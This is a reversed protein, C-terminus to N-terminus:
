FKGLIELAAEQDLQSVATKLNSFVDSVEKPLKYSSMKEIADDAAEVDMNEMADSLMSLLTKLVEEDIEEKEEDPADDPNLYENLGEKYSRWERVFVDHLTNVTELDEKSSAKELTAAMGSLPIIGISASASKMGHVAIRYDEFSEPLSDKLNQLIDAQADLTNYFEGIITDVAKKEKLHMYAVNWDLGFIVPLESPKVSYATKKPFQGDKKAAPKIMENPLLEKIIGELEEYNIPKSLFADFGNDLYKEKAGAIANATLVVIPTKSCPGDKKSKIRRMAKVGNIGPMMHDMFILDFKQEGALDIAEQGGEAETIDMETENLLSILVKRNMTNDDVVLIKADPATFSGNYVEQKETYAEISEEYDGIPTKDAIRQKIDFSFVSGKGYESKVALSSGMLELLKLTIPIGLGTGEISRNRELDLREFSIFLKEMDEQKIGTGTDEVEFHLVAYESGDNMVETDKLLVRFWITGKNTYKVSNTFLNTLVQTIRVDDGILKSPLNRPVSVDFLIGKKAAKFRIMNTAEYIMHSVDYEVPVIEMKGAEIKSFDLIDNVISLLSKGASRIDKAYELVRGEPSERIIMEDMGIITNIPTRVEHSMRALFDSKAENAELSVQERLKAENIAENQLFFFMVCCSMAAAVYSFDFSPFFLLIVAITAPFIFFTSFIIASKRGIHKVCRLMVAIAYLICIIPVVAVYDRWPGYNYIGNEVTFLNGTYVGLIVWCVDVAAIAFIIYDHTKSVEYKERIFSFVYLAFFMIGINTIVFTSANVVVHVGDSLVTGEIAYSFADVFLGVMESLVLCMFYHTRRNNNLHQQHLSALIMLMFVATIIESTIIINNM